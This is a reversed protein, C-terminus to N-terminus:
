QARENPRSAAPPQYQEKLNCKAARHGPQGCKYCASSAIREELVRASIKYKQMMMPKWDTPNKQQQSYTTIVNVQRPYSRRQQRQQNQNSRALTNEATVAWQVYHRLKIILPEGKEQARARMASLTQIEMQAKISPHIGREVQDLQLAPDNFQAAHFFRRMRLVFTHVSEGPQQRAIYMLDRAKKQLDDSVYEAAVVQFFEKLTQPKNELGSYWVLGENDLRSTALLVQNEPNKIGQLTLFFEMAQCWEGFYCADKNLDSGTLKEPPTVKSIKLVQTREARDAKDEATFAGGSDDDDESDVIKDASRGGTPTSSEKPDTVPNIQIESDLEQPDQQAQSASLAQLTQEAAAFRQMLEIQKELAVAKTELLQNRANMEMNSQQLEEIQSVYDSHQSGTSDHPGTETPGSM